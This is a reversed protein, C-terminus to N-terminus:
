SHPAGTRRACSRFTYKAWYCLHMRSFSNLALLFIPLTSALLPNVYLLCRHRCAVTSFGHESCLVRSSLDLQSM